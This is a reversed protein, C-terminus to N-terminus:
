TNQSLPHCLPPPTHHYTPSLPALHQFLPTLQSRKPATPPLVDLPYILTMGFWGMARGWFEPSHHTMPDAWVSAGSEDYAHYLLGESSHLHSAYVILQRAAEDNAYPNDGFLRGYRALFPMSM